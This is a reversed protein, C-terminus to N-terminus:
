STLQTNTGPHQPKHNSYDLATTATIIQALCCLLHPGNVSHATDARLLENIQLHVRVAVIDDPHTGETMSIKVCIALVHGQLDCCIRLIARRSWDKCRREATPDCIRASSNRHALMIVVILVIRITMTMTMIMTM